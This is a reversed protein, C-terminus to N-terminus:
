IMGRSSSGIGILTGDHVLVVYGYIDFGEIDRTEESMEPQDSSRCFNTRNEIEYRSKVVMTILDPPVM